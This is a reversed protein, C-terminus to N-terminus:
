LLYLIYCRRRSGNFVRYRTRLTCRSPPSKTMCLSISLVLLLLLLLLALVVLSGERTVHLEKCLM